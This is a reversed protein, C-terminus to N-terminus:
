TTPSRLRARRGRRVHYNWAAWALRRRPLLRADTHLVAENAQYPIARSCRASPRARTPSCRSRRTATAPSSCPTTANREQGRAERGRRRRHAAGARGADCPRIRDRFPAVLRRSTARRGARSRAGCRGTTRRHAHRPQAPLPRLVAGPFADDVGPRHVLDGRGDARRLPRRLGPRLPWARALEGLPLEGGPEDLLRPAERNFRLIDRVM